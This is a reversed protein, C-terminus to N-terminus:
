VVKSEVETVMAIDDDSSSDSGGESAEIIETVTQLVEVLEDDILESEDSNLRYEEGYAKVKETNSIDSSTHALNERSNSSDTSGLDGVDEVLIVPKVIDSESELFHRRQDSEVYPSSDMLDEKGENVLEDKGKSKLKATNRMNGNRGNVAANLSSSSSISESECSAGLSDPTRLSDSAGDLGQSKQKEEEEQGLCYQLGSCYHLMMMMMAEVKEDSKAIQRKLVEKHNLDTTEEKAKMLENKNESEEDIEKQLKMVMSDLKEKREIHSLEAFLEKGMEKAAMVVMEDLNQGKVRHQQALQIMEDMELDSDDSSDCSSHKDKTKLEGSRSNERSLITKSLIEQLSNISRTQPLPITSESQNMSPHAETNPASNRRRSSVPSPFPSLQNSSSVPHPLPKSQLVSRDQTSPNIVQKNSRFKRIISTTKQQVEQKLHREESQSVPPKWPESPDDRKRTGNQTCLTEAQCRMVCKKHCIMSCVCCQFAAKLWIKKGCFHCYTATAFNTRDFIHKGEEEQAEKEKESTSEVDTEPSERHKICVKERPVERTYLKREDESMELAKYVFALKIDGHCLDPFFGPHSSYAALKARSAGARTESPSLKVTLQNDGQLTMLCDLAIDVLSLCVHGVVFDKSAKLVRENKDVKKPIKCWVCINLFKEQTGMSFTFKENWSPNQTAPVEVTRIMSNDDEEEEESIGETENLELDFDDSKFSKISTTDSQSRSRAIVEKKSPMRLSSSFDSKKPSGSLDKLDKESTNKRIPRPSSSQSGIAASSDDSMKRQSQPSGQSKTQHVPTKKQSTSDPVESQTKSRTKRQLLARGSNVLSMVKKQPSSTISQSQDSVSPKSSKQADSDRQISINVFDDTIDSMKDDKKVDSQVDKLSVSDEVYQIDAAVKSKLREIRVKLREGCNKFLKAAQKTNTVKTNGISVLIDGKRIDVQSAPSDAQISDIIVMDDYKELVFGDRFTLGISVSNGKLIELDYVVWIKKKGEALELWPQSDVSLTCYLSSDTPLDMLQSCKKITVELKGQGLNVGKLHIDRVDTTPPPPQFFPKMRFKYNPLTHKKRITRKLQAVILTTIKPLAKGGYKSEVDFEILPEEYFSFSWHTYPESSFQLRARGQLKTVTVSLYVRRKGFVMDIELALQFGGQYDLDMEIDVQELTEGQLKVDKVIATKIVPFVPGLSFDQVTIQDIIRGTTKQMLEAFEMNMKKIVWRRMSKTDKLEKYLFHFVLNIALCTERTSKKEKVACLLEKPLKFDVFQPKVPIPEEPIKRLIFQLILWQIALTLLVGMIFSCVIATVLLM